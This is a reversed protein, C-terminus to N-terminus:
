TQRDCVAPRPTEFCKRGRPCGPSHQYYVLSVPIELACRCESTLTEKMQLVRVDLGLRHEHILGFVTEADMHNPQGPRRRHAPKQTRYTWRRELSCSAVWLVYLPSDHQPSARTKWIM